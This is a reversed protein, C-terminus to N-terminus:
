QIRRLLVTKLYEMVAIVEENNLNAAYHQFFFDDNKDIVILLASKCKGNQESLAYKCMQEIDWLRNDDKIIALSAVNNTKTPETTQEEVIPNELVETFKAFNGSIGCEMWTPIIPADIGYVYMALKNKMAHAFKNMEEDTLGSIMWQRPNGVATTLQEINM